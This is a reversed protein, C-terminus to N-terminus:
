DLVKTKRQIFLNDSNNWNKLHFELEMILLRLTAFQGKKQVDMQIAGGTPIAEIANKILNIFVQKIQNNDCKIMLNQTWVRLSININNLLAESNLISIVDSLLPEIEVSKFNKNQPKALV